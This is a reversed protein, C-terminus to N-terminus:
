RGRYAAELIALVDAASVARPNPYPKATALEAAQTLAEEAFATKAAPEAM